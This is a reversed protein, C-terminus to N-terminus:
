KIVLKKILNNTDSNIFVFYIGSHLNTVDLKQHDIINFKSFVQKGEVDFITVDYIGELGNISFYQSCPNPSIVPSLDSFNVLVIDSFNESGNIDVFILRYFNNGEFPEFDSFLYSLLINSTGAGQVIGIDNFNYGDSSKQIRFYDSNLESETNWTLDIKNNSIEANFQTLTVPLPVAPMVVIEDIFYYAATAIGAAQVTHTTSADNFFNGITIYNYNQDPTYSFSVYQWTTSWIEGPYELQPIGGIPEHDVQSLPAVSFRIGFHNASSNCYYGGSGNTVWFSVTYPNGAVMPTTFQISIYERFEPTTLYYTVFGMVADGSQPSVTGFISVPLDVGGSGTNHLYDSSAYPWAFIAMGNLNSWGTAKYWQGYGNPLSSYTEFGNNPVINQANIINIEVVFSILILVAKLRRM